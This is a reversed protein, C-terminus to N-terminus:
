GIPVNPMFASKGMTVNNSFGTLVIQDFANPASAALGTLLNSGYAPLTLSPSLIQTPVGVTDLVSSRASDQYETASVETEFCKLLPPLNLLRTLSRFSRLVTLIPQDVLVSDTTLSPLGVPLLQPSPM